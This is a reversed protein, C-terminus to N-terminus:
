GTAAAPPKEAGPVGEPRFSADFQSQNAKNEPSGTPMFDGYGNLSYPSINSVGPVFQSQKKL